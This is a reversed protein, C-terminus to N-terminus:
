AVHQKRSNVINNKKMAKIQNLRCLEGSTLTSKISNILNNKKEDDISEFVMKAYLENPLSHLAIDLLKKRM